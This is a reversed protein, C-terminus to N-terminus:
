RAAEERVIAELGDLVLSPSREVTVGSFGFLGADGGTLFLTGLGYRAMDAQLRAELAEKLWVQGHLVCEGTDTGPEAADVADPEFGIRAADSKLSRLMMNRGPLIYGGLHRGDAAVFDVTVASGADVVAFGSRCRLWAGYMGHWRDAGMRSPDQYASVLGRRSSESWYFRPTHGTFKALVDALKHRHAESVVTSVAVGSVAPLSEPFCTDSGLESMLAAGRDVMRGQERLEWKLRTNGVDVLLIM